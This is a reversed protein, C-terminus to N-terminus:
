APRGSPGKRYWNFRYWYDLFRLHILITYHLSKDCIRKVM